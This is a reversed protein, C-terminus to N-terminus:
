WLFFCSSRLLLPRPATPRGHRYPFRSKPAACSGCGGRGTSAAELGPRPWDVGDGQGGEVSNGGGVIDLSRGLGEVAEARSSHFHFFYPACRYSPPQPRGPRGTCRRRPRRRHPVAVFAGELSPPLPRNGCGVGGGCSPSSLPFLRLSFALVRASMKCPTSPGVAVLPPAAPRRVPGAPDVASALRHTRPMHARPIWARRRGGREPAPAPGGGFSVRTSTPVVPEGSAVMEM